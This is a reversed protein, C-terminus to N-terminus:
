MIVQKKSTKKKIMRRGVTGDRDAEDRKKGTCNKKHWSAVTVRRVAARNPQAAARAVTHM